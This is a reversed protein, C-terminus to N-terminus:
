QNLAFSARLTLNQESTLWFRRLRSANDWKKEAVMAIKWIKSADDRANYVALTEQMSDIKEANYVALTEQM